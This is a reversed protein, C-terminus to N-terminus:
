AELAALFGEPTSEAVRAPIGLASEVDDVSVDDLFVRDGERLVVDPIILCDHDRAAEALQGIVDRGTLLGAVTVSAGFFENVVPVATVALGHRRLRAAFRKLFPHFSTGTFTLFRETLPGRDTRSTRPRLGRARARFLAVMGVGNEIQPLDGYERLPPFPRDATLYLEDAGYVLEDGYKTRFRGQFSAILDLAAEADAKEVPTLETRRHATLGVPVVAVSLLHPYFSHLERITRELEKGDNLGPCLVIQAHFRVGNRAFFHLEGMIDPAAPNGLIRARLSPNTTHVSVYLPSLRQEVIRRKEATTLNTLTVYNGYLFSMRYDEDKVYLTKRLGRPLQSVFCFVCKNRCTKVRFQELEFGPDGGPELELTLSRTRGRRAVRLEVEPEDLAYLCDIGDRIGHGDVSLLVDGTRLGAREAPGGPRVTEVTVGERRAV